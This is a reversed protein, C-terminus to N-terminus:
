PTSLRSTELGLLALRLESDKWLKAIDREQSRLKGEAKYTSQPLVTTLEEPRIIEDGQFLGVNMINAFVDAYTLLRKEAVDKEGM